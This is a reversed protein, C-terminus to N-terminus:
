GDDAGDGSDRRRGVMASSRTQSGPRQRGGSRSAPDCGRPRVPGRSSGRGAVHEICGSAARWRRWGAQSARAARVAVTTRLEDVEFRLRDITEELMINEQKQDEVASRAAAAAAKELDQELGAVREDYTKRERAWKGEELV